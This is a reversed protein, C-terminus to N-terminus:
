LEMREQTNPEGPRVLGHKNLIGLLDYGMQSGRAGFGRRIPHSYTDLAMQIIEMLIERCEKDTLRRDTKKM